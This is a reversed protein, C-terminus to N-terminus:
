RRMQELVVQVDLLIKKIEKIDKQAMHIKWFGILIVSIVGGYFLAILATAILEPLSMEM